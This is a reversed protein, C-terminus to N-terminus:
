GEDTDLEILRQNPSPKNLKIETVKNLILKSIDRQLKSSISKQLQKVRIIVFGHEILLGSKELDARQNRKLNEMGWIPLFHSPGDIEIITSIEPLYLDIQLKTNPILKEVHCEVKYGAKQLYDRVFKELKSGETATKRVANRASELIEQQKHLPLKEWNDKATKSRRDLEEQSLTKWQASVGESIRLKEQESRERGATPHHARGQKLAVTQAEGRSRLETGDKILRRRLTSKPVGLQQAIDMISRENVVYQEHRWEVTNMDQKTM